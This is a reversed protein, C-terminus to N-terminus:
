LHSLFIATINPTVMRGEIVWSHISQNKYKSWNLSKNNNFVALAQLTPPFQVYERGFIFGLSTWLWCLPGKLAWEIEKGRSSQIDTSEGIDERFERLDRDLSWFDRFEEWM